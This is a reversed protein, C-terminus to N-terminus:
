FFKVRTLFLEILSFFRLFRSDSLFNLLYKYSINNKVNKGSKCHPFYDDCFNSGLISIFELVLNENVFQREIWTEFNRHTDWSVTGKVKAFLKRTERSFQVPGRAGTNLRGDLFSGRRGQPGDDSHISCGCDQLWIWSRVIEPCLRSLSSRCFTAYCV